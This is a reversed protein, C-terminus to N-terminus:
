MSMMGGDQGSVGVKEQFYDRIDDSTLDYPLNGLYVRNKWVKKDWGPGDGRGRGGGGGGRGGGGGGGMSGLTFRDMREIAESIHVERDDLMLSGLELFRNEAGEGELNVYALGINREPKARYPPVFLSKVM